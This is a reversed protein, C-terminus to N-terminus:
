NTEDKKFKPKEFFKVDFKDSQSCSFPVHANKSLIEGGGGAIMANNFEEWNELMLLHGAHKVGYVSVTPADEKGERKLEECRRQVSTSASPDMWDNQGYIMAIDKVKLLPIRDVIPKKAYAMPKLIKNLSDAGSAPLIANLYLYEALSAREEACTIAPLRREVYGSVMNRGKSEPLSNVFSPPTIGFRWLGSAFSILLKFKMPIDKRISPDEHPVGAPSILILRDVHQPYKECYAVSLYGGISHGGLTMKDLNHAKRWAELSEVFFQEATDVDDCGEVTKMKFSPRSSLGWGLMDLAYVVGGFHNNSLGILNRYYYLAGNAYGHLLVLPSGENCRDEHDKATVKIGHMIFEDSEKKSQCVLQCKQKGNLPIASSPIATDFLELKESLNGGFRNAFSMLSSEASRMAEIRTALQSSWDFIGM